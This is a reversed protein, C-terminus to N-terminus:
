KPYVSLGEEICDTGDGVGWYSSSSGGESLVGIRTVVGSGFGIEEDGPDDSVMGDVEVLSADVDVATGDDGAGSVDSGSGSTEAM